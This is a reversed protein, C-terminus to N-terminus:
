RRQSNWKVNTGFQLWVYNEPSGLPVEYSRKLPLLNSLNDYLTFAAKDNKHSHFVIVEPIMGTVTDREEDPNDSTPFPGFTNCNTVQISFQAITSAIESGDAPATLRIQCSIPNFGGMAGRYERFAQLTYMLNNAAPSSVSLNNQAVTLQSQLKGVQTKLSDRGAIGEVDKSHMEYPGLAVGLVIFLALLTLAPTLINDQFFDKSERIADSHSKKNFRLQIYRVVGTCLAFILGLIGLDEFLPRVIGGWVQYWYKPVDWLLHIHSM